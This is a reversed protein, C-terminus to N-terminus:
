WEASVDRYKYDVNNHLLIYTACSIGSSNVNSCNAPNFTGYTYQSGVFNKKAILGNKGYGFYFVDRGVVNPGKKGNIDVLVDGLYSGNQNYWQEGLVNSKFGITMNNALLMRGGNNWTIDDGRNGNLLKYYAHWQNPPYYYSNCSHNSFGGDGKCYKAVKLYPMLKEALFDGNKRHEWNGAPWHWSTLEGNEVISLKFAHNLISYAEKVGSITQQDEWKQMLNPITLVAIVGIITLTILVEALTFAKKM